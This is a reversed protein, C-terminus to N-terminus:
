FEDALGKGYGGVQDDISPLRKGKFYGLPDVYGAFPGRQMM